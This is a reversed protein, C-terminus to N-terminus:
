VVVIADAYQWHLYRQSLCHGDESRVCFRQGSPRSLSHSQLSCRSVFLWYSLRQGLNKSMQLDECLTLVCLRDKLMSAFCLLIIFDRLLVELAVGVSDGLSEAGYDCNTQLHSQHGQAHHHHAELAGSTYRSYM